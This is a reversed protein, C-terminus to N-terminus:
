KKAKVIETPFTNQSIQITKVVEFESSKIYKDLYIPRCGTILKPFFKAILFWIKNYWKEGFSMSSIIIRGGPKLLRYFENLINKFDEEPLLDLMYNNIILDFSSNQYPLDYISCQKLNYNKYEKLRKRTKNLMESSIDIGENKGKSNNKIIKEFLKGTGVAVELIRENNEIEALDVVKNLAKTETLKSWLDYIGIVRAFNKKVEEISPARDLIKM